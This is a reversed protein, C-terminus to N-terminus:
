CGSRSIFRLRNPSLAARPGGWGMAVAPMESTSSRLVKVQSAEVEIVFARAISDLAVVIRNRNRQSILIGELGCMAGETIM